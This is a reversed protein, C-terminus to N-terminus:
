YLKYKKGQLAKVIGQLELNLLNIALKNLPIQSRWSLDDILVAEPQDLLVRVVSAEEDSLAEWNIDRMSRPENKEGKKWNM